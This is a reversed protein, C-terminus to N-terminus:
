DFFEIDYWKGGRVEIYVKGQLVFLHIVEYEGYMGLATISYPVTHKGDNVYVKSRQVEVDKLKM